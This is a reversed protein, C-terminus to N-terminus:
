RCPELVIPAGGTGGLTLCEDGGCLRWTGGEASNALVVRPQAPLEPRYTWGTGDSVADPPPEMGAGSGEVRASVVTLGEPLVQWSESWTTKEVTHTWSLTFATVAMTLVKGGVALCLSM